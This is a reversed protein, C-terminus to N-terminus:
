QGAIFRKKNDEGGEPIYTKRIAQVTEGNDFPSKLGFSSWGSTWILIMEKWYPIDKQSAGAFSSALITKLEKGFETYYCQDEEDYVTELLNLHNRLENLLYIRLDWGYVIIDSGYVSLVPRHTLNTDSILFRHSTLPVLKPANNLWNSLISEKEENSAPRNGWSKLWVGNPGQVDELITWYPWDLRSRIEAEDELWNYFFPTKKIAPKDGELYPAHETEEKRDITHLIKLFERHEPMFKVGYKGEIADIEDETLPVWKAGYAWPEPTFGDSSHLPAKSWFFETREKVWYFFDKYNEPIQLM